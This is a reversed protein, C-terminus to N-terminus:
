MSIVFSLVLLMRLQKDDSYCVSVHVNKTEERRHSPSAISEGYGNKVEGMKNYQFGLRTLGASGHWVDIENLLLKLDGFFNESSESDSGHRYNENVPHLSLVLLLSLGVSLYENFNAFYHRGDDQRTHTQSLTASLM